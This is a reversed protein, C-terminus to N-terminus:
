RAFTGGGFVMVNSYKGSGGFFHWIGSTFPFANLRQAGSRCIVRRVTLVMFVIM